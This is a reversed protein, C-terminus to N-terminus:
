KYSNSDSFRIQSSLERKVVFSKFYNFNPFILALFFSLISLFTVNLLIRKIILILAHIKPHMIFSEVVATDAIRELLLSDYM